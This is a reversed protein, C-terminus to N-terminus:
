AAEGAEVPMSGGMAARGKHGDPMAPAPMVSNAPTDVVFVVMWSGTPCDRSSAPKTEADAFTAGTGASCPSVPREVPLSITRHDPQQGGDRSAAILSRVQARDRVRLRLSQSAIYGVVDTGDRDYQPISARERPRYHRPRGGERSPAPSIIGAMKVDAGRFSSAVSAGQAPVGLDLAVM